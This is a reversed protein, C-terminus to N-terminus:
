IYLYSLNEYTICVGRLTPKLSFLFMTASESNLSVIPPFTFSYNLKQQIKDTLVTKANMKICSRRGHVNQFPNLEVRSISYINSSCHSDMKYFSRHLVAATRPASCQTVHCSELTEKFM